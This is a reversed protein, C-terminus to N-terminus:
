CNRLVEAGEAGYLRNHIVAKKWAIGEGAYLAEEPGKGEKGAEKWGEFRNKTWKWVFV